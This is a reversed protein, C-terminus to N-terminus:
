IEDDQAVHPVPDLLRTASEGLTDRRGAFLRNLRQQIDTLCGDISANVVETQKETLAARSALTDPILAIAMRINRFAEGVYAVVGETTWIQGEQSLVALQAKMSDWFDKRLKPPLDTHNMRIVRAVVDDPLPVLYPAADKLRWIHQGDRSGVPKVPALRRAVTTTDMEFAIALQRATLGRLLIDDAELTAARPRGAM